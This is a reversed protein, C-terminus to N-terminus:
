SNRAFNVEYPKRQKNMCGIMHKTGSSIGDWFCLGRDAVLAMAENRAKPANYRGLNKYDPRFVKTPMHMNYAATGGLTDAGDAGGHIVKCPGYFELTAYLREEVLEYDEWGRSGFIVVTIM